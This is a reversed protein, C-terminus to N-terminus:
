VIELNVFLLKDDNATGKVFSLYQKEGVVLDVKSLERLIEEVLQPIETATENPLWQLLETAATTTLKPDDQIM